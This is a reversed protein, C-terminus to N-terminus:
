IPIDVSQARITRLHLGLDLSHCLVLAFSHVVDRDQKGGRRIAIWVSRVL